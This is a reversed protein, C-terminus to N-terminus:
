PLLVWVEELGSLNAFLKVRVEASGLENARPAEAVQGIRIGKPLLGLGSTTVLQGPKAGSSPPLMGLSVLTEELPGAAGKIIGSENATEIHASVPCNPSSILLVESTTASVSAIRGALCGDPTLVPLDPRMGDRSGLDIRIIQWWNATDRAIVHAPRLRSRWASQQQWSYMQRYGNNERLLADNQAATLQLVENSRRLEENQRLLEARSVMTDGTKGAAQHSSKSLGFLPLFLSSIGLKLRSAANHPLNLVVLVVLVVLVLAIIHPRKLM